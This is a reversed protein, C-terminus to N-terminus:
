RKSFQKQYNTVVDRLAVLEQRIKKEKKSGRIKYIRGPKRTEIALDATM